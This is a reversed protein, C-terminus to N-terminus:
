RIINKECLKRGQSAKFTVIFERYLTTMTYLAMSIAYAGNSLMKERVFFIKSLCMDDTNPLVNIIKPVLKNKRLCSKAINKLTYGKLLIIQINNKASIQKKTYNVYIYTDQKVENKEEAVM